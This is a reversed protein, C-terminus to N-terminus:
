RLKAASHGGRVSPARVIDADIDRSPSLRVVPAGCAAMLMRLGEVWDEADALTAFGDRRYVRDPEMTAVATFRGDPEDHIRYAVIRPM